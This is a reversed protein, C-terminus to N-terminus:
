KNSLPTYRRQVRSTIGCSLTYAITQAKSAIEEVPLGKGWLIVESGVAANPCTRLDIALMDMSVRGILQCRIGNVLIPTGTPAHRPYGDGYGVAAIGIPMSEPCVFTGGYGIADNLQCHRTAILKARFTLAPKLQHDLGTKGAFPSLGYLLLGPRVWNHTTANLHHAEPWALIAASNALSEEQHPLHLIAKKFCAIQALTTGNHWEDASAFHTLFGIPAQVQPLQRLTDYITAIEKAAFGLRHMGTDIKLWVKLPLDLRTQKLQKVQEQCHIVPQLQYQSFLPLEDVDLFGAMINIPKQIGHARLQLAEDLSAVGFGDADQSLVQAIELLGHGYANAKVMAMIRVTPAFRKIHQLNYVVASLDIEVIADRSM